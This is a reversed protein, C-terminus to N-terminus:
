KYVNAGNLLFDQYKNYKRDLYISADKYLYDLFDKILHRYISYKKIRGSSSGNYIGYDNKTFIEPGRLLFGNIFNLTGLFSAEFCSTTNCFCGDGDFYGRMFHRLLYDPVQENTPFSLTLSKQPICGQNILNDKIEYSRFSFRYSKSKNRWCIRNNLGTCQKFKELHTYDLEALSLEIKNEKLSVNGDAYLFGLWYADEETTITKFLNINIIDPRLKKTYQNM